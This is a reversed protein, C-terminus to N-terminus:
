DFSTTLISSKEGKFVQWIAETVFPMFPHLLILNELYAGKLEEFAKINGIRIEEKLEEIYFDALRHWLFEYVLEIAKSFQYSNMYKFYREKEQGFEQRLKKLIQSQSNSIQKSNPAPFKSNLYLFRGINWVKNAFNRMGIIKEESLTLDNGEKVGFVLAARLADAGYKEVMEMPNIVNGKSKSMKQGYKDRVLGHLFVTKFPVKKTAFYGIMIMRAVWWPLIDYGTEMVSTPYFYNFFKNNKSSRTELKPNGNQTLLVAYPWQASSFWTDFTDGEQVFNKQHCNPCEKPEDVCVFWKQCLNCFYAPIQIGWVIQRSINWDHFNELWWLLVKKFRKPIIKIKEKQVLEKAKEALPKIKVFWQEMPLPEIVRGCKYCHGIRHSYNAEKVLLKKEKLLVLVKQRAELIPLDKFQEGALITM